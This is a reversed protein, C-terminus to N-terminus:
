QHLFLAERGLWQRANVVSSGLEQAARQRMTYAIKTDEYNGGMNVHKIQKNLDAFMQVGEEVYGGLPETLMGVAFGALPNGGSVVTGILDGLAYTVGRAMGGSFKSVRHRRESFSSEAFAAIPAFLFDGKFARWGKTYKSLPGGKSTVQRGMLRYLLRIPDDMMNIMSTLM